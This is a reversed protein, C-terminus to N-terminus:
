SFSCHNQPDKNVTEYKHLTQNKDLNYLANSMTMALGFYEIKPDTATHQGIGRAAM